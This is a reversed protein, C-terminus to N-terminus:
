RPASRPRRVRRLRRASGHSSVCPCATGACAAAPGRSSGTAGAGRLWLPQTASRRHWAGHGCAKWLSSGCARGHLTRQPHRMVRVLQDALQRQHGEQHRFPPRQRRAVDLRVDLAVGLHRVLRERSAEVGVARLEEREAHRELRLPVLEGALLQVREAGLLVEQGLELELVLLERRKLRREVQELPLEGIRLRQPERELVEREAPRAEGLRRGLRREADLHEVRVVRHLHRAPQRLELARDRLLARHLEVVPRDRAVVM